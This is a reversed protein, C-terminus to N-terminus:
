SGAEIGANYLPEFNEAWVRMDVVGVHKYIIVGNADVLYTEPAGYVGLDFGLSGDVDYINQQYPDGLEALWRLAKPRSDKYNLGVIRVGQAALQNLYRHEIRCSGCWTAWVNVLVPAGILDTNNITVSEDELQQLAFEPFQKGLLASPLTETDLSLGRFLLTALAFFALLPLILVLRGKM